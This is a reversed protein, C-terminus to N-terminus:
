WNSRILAAPTSSSSCFAAMAAQNVDGKQGYALLRPFILLGIATPWRGRRSAAPVRRLDLSAALERRIGQQRGQAPQGPLDPSRRRSTRGGKRRPWRERRSAPPGTSSAAPRALGDARPPDRKSAVRSRNDQTIPHGAGAPVGGGRVSNAV